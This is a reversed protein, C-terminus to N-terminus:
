KGAATLAERIQEEVYATLKAKDLAHKWVGDCTAWKVEKGDKISSVVMTSSALQYTEAYSKNADEEVNIEQFAVTGEAQQTSFKEAVTDAVGKQIGVCTPCRRHGHFYYVVVGDRVTPSLTTKEAPTVEETEAAKPSSGSDLANAPKNCGALAVAFFLFISVPLNKWREIKMTTRENSPADEAGNRQIELLRTETTKIEGKEIGGISLCSLESCSQSGPCREWAKSSVVADRSM